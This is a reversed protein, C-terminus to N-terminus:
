VVRAGRARKTVFRLVFVDAQRREAPNQVIRNQFQVPLQRLDKGFRFVGPIEQERGLVAVRGAPRKRFREPPEEKVERLTRTEHHHVGGTRFQLPEGKRHILGRNPVFGFAATLDLGPGPFDLCDSELSLRSGFTVSDEARPSGSHPGPNPGIGGSM